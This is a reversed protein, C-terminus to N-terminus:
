VNRRKKYPRTTHVTLLFVVFAANAVCLVLPYLATTVSFTQLALLALLFKFSNLAYTLTTEQPQGALVKRVTPVFGLLFVISALIVSLEPDHTTLWLCGVLLAAGLSVWDLACIKKTGHSLALVCIIAGAVAVMATPWSGPGAGHTYQEAFIFGALVAWIGWTFAHPKTRGALIDRIYIGYSVVAIAMAILALLIGM